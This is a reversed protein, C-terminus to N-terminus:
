HAALRVPVSVIGIRGSQVACEFLFTLLRGGEAVRVRFREVAQGAEEIRNQAFQDSRQGSAPNGEVSVAESQRDLQSALPGGGGDLGELDDGEVKGCHAHANFPVSVLGGEEDVVAGSFGVEANTYKAVQKM